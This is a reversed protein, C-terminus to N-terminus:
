RAPKPKVQPECVFGHRGALRVDLLKDNDATSAVVKHGPTIVPLYAMDPNPCGLSSDSFEVIEVSIITIDAPAAGTHEAVIRRATAEPSQDPETSNSVSEPAGPSSCAAILAACLLTYLTKQM